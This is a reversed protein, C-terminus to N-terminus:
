WKTYRSMSEQKQGSRMVEPTIPVTLYKGTVQSAELQEYGDIAYSIVGSVPATVQQLSIGTQQLLADLNRLTNFNYMNWFQLRWPTSFIMFMESFDRGSYSLAFSSLQRKIDALNAETLTM